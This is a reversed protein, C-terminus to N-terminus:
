FYQVKYWTNIFIHCSNRGHIWNVYVEQRILKCLAYVLWHSSDCRDKASYCGDRVTVVHYGHNQSHIRPRCLFYPLYIKMADGMIILGVLCSNVFTSSLHYEEGANPTCIFLEQNAPFLRANQASSQCSKAEFWMVGMSMLDDNPSNPSNLISRGCCVRVSRMVSRGLGLPFGRTDSILWPYFVLLCCYGDETDSIRAPTRFDNGLCVLNFLEATYDRM